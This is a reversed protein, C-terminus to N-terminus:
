SEFACQTLNQPRVKKVALRINQAGEQILDELFGAQLLVAEEKSDFPGFYYICDPSQTKVKLWWSLNMQPLFREFLRHLPAFPHNLSTM